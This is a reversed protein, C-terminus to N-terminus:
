GDEEEDQGSHAEAQGRRVGEHFSSLFSYVEDPSSRTEEDAPESRPETAIPSVPLSTDPRQAGPVRRVLGGATVEPGTPAGALVEATSKQGSTADGSQAPQRPLGGVTREPSAEATSVGEVVPAGGEEPTEEPAPEPEASDGLVSAPLDIRATLGGAPHDVLSLDVGHREALHGAVYHGLYRSPAVTFSEEARLRRNARSLDEDAMGLGNDSIALTYGTASTRGRVEVIEEPPSFILANEILEALMHAVDTAVSGAVLAPELQRVTVRQYEEVEGLASRVVDAVRVSASWQRPAEVGALVLLSEANRRMRTALHDLKFLSDLEEPDAEDRELDTILELQRNLLNQNRRGLNVFSDAINRRLVAQEVALDLASAQVTNLAAAVEKM